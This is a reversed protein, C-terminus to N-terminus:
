FTKVIFKGYGYQRKVREGGEVEETLEEEVPHVNEVPNLADSSFFVFFSSTCEL